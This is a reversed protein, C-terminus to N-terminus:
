KQRQNGKMKIQNFYWMSLQVPNVEVEEIRFILPPLSVAPTTKVTEKSEASQEPIILLDADDVVHLEDEERQGTSGRWGCREQACPGERECSHPPHAFDIIVWELRSFDRKIKCTKSFMELAIQPGAANVLFPSMSFKGMHFPFRFVDM